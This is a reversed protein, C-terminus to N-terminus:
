TARLWAILRILVPIKSFSDVSAGIDHAFELLPVAAQGGTLIESGRSRTKPAAPGVVRFGDWRAVLSGPTCVLSVPQDEVLDQPGFSLRFAFQARIEPNFHFWLSTVLEDFGENGLRVVPGKGRAALLEAAAVFDVAQPPENVSSSIELPELLEPSSNATSILSNILPRLDGMRMMENLPILLAHSLVMGSRSANPDHFTKAIVYWAGLPFGSLYPSWNVGQPANNPLDLKYGLGSPPVLRSTIARLGHGSRVEGYIAQQVLM